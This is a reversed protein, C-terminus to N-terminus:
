EVPKQNASKLDSLPGVQGLPRSVVPEVVKKDANRSFEVVPVLEVNVGSNLTGGAKKLLKVAASFLYL